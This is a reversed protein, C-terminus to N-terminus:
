LTKTLILHILVHLPAQLQGPVYWALVKQFKTKIKPPHSLCSLERKWFYSSFLSQELPSTVDLIKMITIVITIIMIKSRGRLICRHVCTKSIINAHISQMYIMIGENLYDNNKSENLM